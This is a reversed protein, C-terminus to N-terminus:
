QNCTSTDVEVYVRSKYVCVGTLNYAQVPSSQNRDRNM